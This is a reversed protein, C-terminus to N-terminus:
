YGVEEDKMNHAFFILNPDISYKQLKETRQSVYLDRCARQIMKDPERVKLNNPIKYVSRYINDIVM